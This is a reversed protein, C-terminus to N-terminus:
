RESRAFVAAIKRFVIQIRAFCAAAFPLACARADPARFRRAASGCGRVPLLLSASISPTQPRPRELPICVLM